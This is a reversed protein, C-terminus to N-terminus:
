LFAVLNNVVLSLFFLHSFVEENCEYTEFKDWNSNLQVREEYPFGLKLGFFSLSIEFRNEIMRTKM